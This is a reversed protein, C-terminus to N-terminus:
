TIHIHLVVVILPPAYKRPPAYKIPIDLFHIESFDVFSALCYGLGFSILASNLIYTPTYFISFFINNKKIKDSAGRQAQEDEEWETEESIKSGGVGSSGAALAVNTTTDLIGEKMRAKVDMLRQKMETNTDVLRQKMEVHTDMLHQKMEAQTDVLHKNMRSVSERFFEDTREISRMDANIRANAAEFNDGIQANAAEFRECIRANTDKFHADMRAMAEDVHKNFSGIRKRQREIEHLRPTVFSDYMWSVPECISDSPIWRVIEALMEAPLQHKKQKTITSSM